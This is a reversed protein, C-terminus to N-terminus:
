RMIAIKAAYAEKPSAGSLVPMPRSNLRDQISRLKAPEVNLSTGKPLHRRLVGNLNENSGRQWPSRADAFYVPVGLKRTLTAHLALEKGQDWTILKVHYSRMRRALAYIVIPSKRRSVKIIVTKRTLREVMTAVASRGGKGIVLDGEWHGFETRDNAGAPRQCIPTMGVIKGKNTVTRARSRRRSRPRIMLKRLKKKIPTDSSYLWDYVAQATITPLDKYKKAILTLSQAISYRAKLCHHLRVVLCPFRDLLPVNTPTAALKTAHAQAARSCYARQTGLRLLERSVTSQNAGIALAIDTQGHGAAHMNEIVERRSLTLRYYQSM